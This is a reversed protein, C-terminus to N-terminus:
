AHWLSNRRHRAPPIDLADVADLAHEDLGAHVLGLLAGARSRLRQRERREELASWAAISRDRGCRAFSYVKVTRRVPQPYPKRSERRADTLSRASYRLDHLIM